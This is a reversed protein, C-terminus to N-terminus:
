FPEGKEMTHNLSGELITDNPLTLNKFINIM